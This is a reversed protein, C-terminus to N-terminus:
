LAVASEPLGPGVGEAVFVNGSAPWLRLDDRGLGQRATTVFLRSYDAGGFAPCSPRRAAIAIEGRREGKPDYCSVRAAGWEALWLNGAADCVAGDPFIGEGSFDRLVEPAAIPWGDHASLAVRWLCQRDTDAFHATRRDPTFSIANPITLGPYLRRLEGRYYRWVSGLGPEARKGMTGIWFGGWPDARGDNSRTLPQDCELGTICDRAGSALDFVWLGTESALLLRDQDLWAAASVMEDFAWELPGSADRSLMKRNPIDFWFLQGRGPHWLPGEGLTCARPDHIDAAM